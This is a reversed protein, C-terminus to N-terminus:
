NCYVAADVFLFDSSSSVSSTTGIKFGTQTRLYPKVCNVGTIPLDNIAGSAVVAYNPNTMPTIFNVTYDGVGNDVISSVNFSNRVGPTGIGWFNVWAKAAVVAQGRVANQVFSTTALRGTEDGYPATDARPSGTFVPADLTALPRGQWKLAGAADMLLKGGVKGVWHFAIAPAWQEGTEAPAWEGVQKSERVELAASNWDGTSTPSSLSPRQQSVVGVLLRKGLEAVMSANDAKTTLANLVTTSFNPDNGLAASLEKLTDLAAPASGVLDAIAKDVTNAVFLCNALQSTRAGLNATEATPTGSFAPSDLSAKNADIWSKTYADGIGYGGLTTAKNAKGGLAADVAAMTYADGIGYGSLTTPNAGQQVIGRDDITVRTYSGVVKNKPLVSLIAADVYGRTALVVAPDIKLQVNSSSSVILNMRVVQTRGSGQSLLPKYTPACNAVAVMDGDADYLAIERIWHGGVDAPIVQEAVIIAPDQDDVKLLNLPARRWENILNTQTANPTPDTGNADGVAMQTIKWPVGLADANAQKAAGVKTLIAYFQSNQDVM